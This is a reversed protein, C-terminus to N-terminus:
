VVRLRSLIKLATWELTGYNKRYMKSMMQFSEGIRSDDKANQVLSNGGTKRHLLIKDVFIYGSERAARLYFDVDEWLPLETNFGGVRHFADKKVMAASCVLPPVDCLMRSLFQYRSVYTQLRVRAFAYHEQEHRVVESNPDGVPHVAGIAVGVSSTMLKKYMEVLTRPEVTDDDDLFYFVRGRATRALDNRVIAPLGGTPRDRKQYRVREDAITRVFREASGEPSDDAVLVELKLERIELVSNIASLLENERRFTPIMISVDTDDVM